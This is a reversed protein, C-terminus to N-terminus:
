GTRSNADRKKEQALAKTQNENMGAATKWRDGCVCRVHRLNRGIQKNMIEYQGLKDVNFNLFSQFQYVICVLSHIKCHRLSDVLEQVGNDSVWGIVKGDLHVLHYFSQPQALSDHYAIVGMSLIMKEIPHTFVSETVVQIILVVDILM